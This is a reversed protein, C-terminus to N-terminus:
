SAPSAKAQAIARRALPEMLDYGARNPHLGDNALTQRLNGHGDTLVTYYDVFVLHWQHALERM